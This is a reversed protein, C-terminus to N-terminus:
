KKYQEKIYSDKLILNKIYGQKNPQENLMEIIKKDHEKHLKLFVGIHNNMILVEYFYFFRNDDNRCNIINFTDSYPM